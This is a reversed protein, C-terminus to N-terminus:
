GHRNRRLSFRRGSPRRRVASRSVPRSGAVEDKALVREVLQAVGALASPDFSNYGRGCVALACACASESESADSRQGSIRRRLTVEAFELDRESENARAIRDEPRHRGPKAIVERYVIAVSREAPDLALRPDKSISEDIADRRAGRLRPQADVGRPISLDSPDRECRRVFHGLSRLIWAPSSRQEGGARYRSTSSARTRTSRTLCTSRM